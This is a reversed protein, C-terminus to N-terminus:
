LKLWQFWSQRVLIMCDQTCGQNQYYQTMHRHTFIYRQVQQLKITATSTMLMEMQTLIRGSTHPTQTLITLIVQILMRPFTKSKM